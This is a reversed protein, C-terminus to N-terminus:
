ATRHWRNVNIYPPMNEHAQSATAVSSDTTNGSNGGTNGNNGGTATITQVANTTSDGVYGYKHGSGGLSSASDGAWSGATVGLARGVSHAHNNLSHVHNNLGHHHSPMASQASTLKVTTEGGDKAGVGSNDNAHKVAYSTGASVHVVGATELVWTGGWTNNPNFTTDSTEYYSGVPYVFDFLARVVRAKDKFHSDMNCYFGEETAPQGFAIGHGGALFDITYFAAALTQKIETGSQITDVPTIGIQYSHETSFAGGFLSYITTPSAPNYDTWDVPVTLARDSYWTTATQTGDVTLVPEVLKAIVDVYNITVTAVGYAGEDATEGNLDTRDINLLGSPAIYGNVTIAPLTKTTTQNRSDTVTITPTFTGVANLLISLTGSSLVNSANGTLTATQSGIKLEAKTIYGGYKASLESVDVSATTLGTYVYPTDFSIETNSFTPPFDITLTQGLTFSQTSTLNIYDYNEDRSVGAWYNNINTYTVNVSRATPNSSNFFDSVYVTPASYTRRILTKTAGNAWSWFNTNPNDYSALSSTRTGNLKVALLQVGILVDSFESDSAGTFKATATPILSTLQFSSTNVKLGDAGTFTFVGTIGSNSLTITKSKSM